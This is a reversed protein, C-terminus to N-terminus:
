IGIIKRLNTSKYYWKAKSNPSFPPGQQNMLRHRALPRRKLKEGATKIEGREGM